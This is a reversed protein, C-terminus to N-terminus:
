PQVRERCQLTVLVLQLQDPLLAEASTAAQGLCAAAHHRARVAMDCAPAAVREEHVRLHAPHQCAHVVRTHGGM